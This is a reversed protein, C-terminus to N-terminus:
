EFSGHLEYRLDNESTGDRQDDIISACHICLLHTHMGRFFLSHGNRKCRCHSVRHCFFYPNLKLGPGTCIRRTSKLGKANYHGTHRNYFFHPKETPNTASNNILLCGPPKGYDTGKQGRAINEDVSTLVVGNCDDENVDEGSDCHDLTASIHHSSGCKM